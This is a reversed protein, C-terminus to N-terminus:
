QIDKFPHEKLAIHKSTGYTKKTLKVTDNKIKLTLFIVPM